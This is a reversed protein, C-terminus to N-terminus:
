GNKNLANYVITFVALGLLILGGWLIPNGHNKIIFDKFPQIWEELTEIIGLM